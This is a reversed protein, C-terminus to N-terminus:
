GGISERRRVVGEVLKVKRSTDDVIQTLKGVATKLRSMQTEPMALKRGGVSETSINKMRPQSIRMYREFRSNLGEIASQLVDLDEYNIMDIQSKFELEAATLPKKKVGPLNSVKKLRKNLQMNVEIANMIRERLYNKDKQVNQLKEELEQLRLQQDDVVKNLRVGHNKLEVYVKHAYEVYKEHLLKCHDHLISRGEISDATLHRMSVPVQPIPIEKPGLLLERSMNESNVTESAELGQDTGKCGEIRLPFLERQVKMEIVACECASTLAILWAKGFSDLLTTVGLLPMPVSDETPCTELVPFVSPAKGPSSRDTTRDSFPLWHLLLADIGAAHYCYLREPIIPDPLLSLPATELLTTPLAFDIVALQLLHPPEGIWPNNVIDQNSGYGSGVYSTNELKVEAIMAVSLLKDDEIRLQPSSGINWVPQMEDALAYIQMQGDSLSIALISDKHISNYLFGVARHRHKTPEDGGTNTNSDLVMPLPGQLSISADFPVYARAKLGLLRLREAVLDDSFDVLEPFVAELWAIAFSANSSAKSGISNSHFGSVCADKYIEEIAASVYISGFPVVPCLAYVSCNSFLIFVTFRDWLHEGGFAFAVPRITVTSTLKPYAAPQLHYEQEPIELDSSLDFIRFVGDSSLIGLHTDSHPHWTVQLIRLTKSEKSSFVGKSGIVSARYLGDGASSPIRDNMFLVMLSGDGALVVAQGTRNIAMYRVQFNVKMNPQLTKVQSAAQITGHSCRISLSHLSQQTCNWLLLRTSADWAMLNLPLRPTGLKFSGNVNSIANSHLSSNFIPHSQLEIWEENEEVM